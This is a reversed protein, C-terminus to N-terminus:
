PLGEVVVTVTGHAIGTPHCHDEGFVEMVESPTAGTTIDFDVPEKGLLIDRVAGGVVYAEYGHQELKELVALVPGPLRYDTKQRSFETM